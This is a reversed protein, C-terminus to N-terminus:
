RGGGYGMTALTSRLDQVLELIMPGMSMTGPRSIVSIQGSQAAKLGPFGNFRREFARRRETSLPPGDSLAIIVDPNVKLLGELSLEPAADTANPIANRGGAAELARGHLSNPRVYWLSGSNPDAGLLLLVRPSTSSVKPHLEDRMRVVLNAAETTRGVLRGIRETSAVVDDLTLWPLMETPAISGLSNGDMSAGDNALIVTAQRRAIAELDPSLGPGVSAIGTASAPHVCHDTRGVLREGSGLAFITETIAPSLSVVRVTENATVGEAPQVQEPPSVVSGLWLSLAVALAAWGGVIGIGKWDMM